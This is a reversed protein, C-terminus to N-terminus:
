KRGMRLRYVERINYEPSAASMSQDFEDWMYYEVQNNFPNNLRVWNLVSDAQNAWPSSLGTIAVWHQAVNDTFNQTEYTWEVVSTGDGAESLNRQVDLLTGGELCTGGQCGVNPATLVMALAIVFHSQEMAARIQGVADNGEVQLRRGRWGPPFTELILDELDSGYTGLQSCPKQSGTATTCRGPRLSQDAGIIDLLTTQGGTITGAIMSLVVQGCLNFGFYGTPNDGVTYQAEFQGQELEGELDVQISPSWSVPPEERVSSRRASFRLIECEKATLHRACEVRPVTGSPDPYRLPNNYSYVWATLSAPQRLDGEWADQSLFRGNGPSYYRARLNVHGTGEMWEGTFGYATPVVGAANLRAGYPEFSQAYGVPYVAGSVQRVSALADGLHYQWTGAGKQGIRGIGYLYADADDSLVQTLGAAIDLTYNQPVSNITQRLRDGLGNYAFEYTDPGMEVSTLRNAHDYAYSRDGGSLLNGNDDWTYAVGDM